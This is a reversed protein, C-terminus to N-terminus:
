FFLFISMLILTTFIIAQGVEHLTAHIAESISAGKLLSLRYHTIFHITDDVAIGIIIPATMLTTIDLNFDLWGMLGFVTLMPFTNPLIAVLGLKVSGFIGFMILSIILFALGFSQIQSWSIADFVRAWAGVGGTLTVKLEPYREKLPLLIKEIGPQVVKLLEVSKKSGITKLSISMRANAYDLSVLRELNEYDGGEILVLLQSVLQPNDPVTYYEERNENLKRHTQKLQNNLTWNHTVLKPYSTEIWQKVEELAFLMEPDRFVGETETELLIEMNGTGLFQEDILNITKRVPSEPPYYESFVTDIEIRAIGLILLLGAAAFLVIVGKPYETSVREIGNLLHKVVRLLLTVKPKENSKPPRPPFWNLLVPLLFITLLFAFMVGIGSLLGMTQIVRLKIFFLSFVGIATTISTLLCALATKSFVSRMVESHQKGQQHFFLYGSLVHVVDAIAAVSVLGFAIYLSLDIPWGTWGALGLVGVISSVFILIPWIVARLSGLLLWTLLLSVILSILLARQYEVAWVDNQYFAGWGPHMFVLDKSFREESLLRWVQKEFDAYDVLGNEVFQPEQEDQGELENEDFGELVDLENEVLPVADLNTRLVLMGYEMNDSLLVRPYEPEDLAQERLLRSQEASQPLEEGIFDRFRISDGDVETFSTNILSEVETLFRLSNEPDNEGRASEADLVDHINKLADLSRASFLEGDVPKYVMGLTVTGGFLDKIRDLSIQVPDDKGFMDDNAWSFAFRPIGAALFSMLIVYLLLVWWRWPHLREPLVEFFLNLRQIMSSM